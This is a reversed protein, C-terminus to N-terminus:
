KAYPINEPRKAVTPKFGPFRLLDNGFNDDITLAYKRHSLLVAPIHDRDRHNCKLVKLVKPSFYKNQFTKIDENSIRILRGEKQLQAILAPISTAANAGGSSAIYERILKTSVVLHANSHDPSPVPKYQQLWSVLKKYEKDMPNAFNKAVNNDIFIDKTM